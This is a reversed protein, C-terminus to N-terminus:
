IYIQLGEKSMCCNILGHLIWWASHVPIFILRAWIWSWLLAALLILLVECVCGGSSSEAKIVVGLIV